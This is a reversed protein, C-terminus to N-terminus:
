GSSTRSACRIEMARLDDLTDVDSPDGTGDCPVEVVPHRRFLTRAGEDGELGMAEGWRSRGLLVPNGRVGGYTAVALDAGDDYAAGLRRYAEAGVLPQDGLGICVADVAPRGSLAGLAARLSHAIGRQWETSVVVEVDRPAVAGVTDAEYGVVLLVAGLGSARVADLAWSVLPRGRLQLLPKAVPMGTRTGGGAALVAVAVNRSVASV